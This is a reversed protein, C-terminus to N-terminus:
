LVVDQLIGIVLSRISCDKQPIFHIGIALLETQERSSMVIGRRWNDTPASVRGSPLIVEIASSRRANFRLSSCYLLRICLVPSTGHGSGGVCENDGSVSFAQWSHRCRDESALPDGNNVATERPSTSRSARRKILANCADHKL